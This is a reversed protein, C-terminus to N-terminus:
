PNLPSASGEIAETEDHRQTVFLPWVAVLAWIEYPFVISTDGVCAEFPVEILISPSNILVGALNFCM